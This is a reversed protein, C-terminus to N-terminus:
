PTVVIRNASLSLGVSVTTGAGYESATAFTRGLSGFVGVNPTLDVSIGTSLDHRRPAALSSDGAPLQSWARSLSVAVGVRTGIQTGAGGGTYWIGPSFYGTSGYIRSLGRDFEVSFPLGWQVRSQDLAALQAAGSLIELTPAVAAKLPHESDNLIAVKANFFATGLGAPRGLADNAAVRPVSAGFQVRPTMGVAVDVVPFNVESVGANQWRV